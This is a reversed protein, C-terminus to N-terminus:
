NQPEPLKGTVALPNHHGLERAKLRLSEPIYLRNLNYGLVGDEIHWNDPLQYELLQSVYKDLNLASTMERKFELPM